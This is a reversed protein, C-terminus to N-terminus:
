KLTLYIKTYECFQDGDFCDLVLLCISSLFGIMAIIINFINLVLDFTATINEYKINYNTHNKNLDAM